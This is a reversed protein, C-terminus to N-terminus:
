KGVNTPKETDRLYYSVCKITNVMVQSYQESNFHIVPCSNTFPEYSYGQYIQAVESTSPTIIKYDRISNLGISLSLKEMAGYSNHVITVDIPFKDTNPDEIIIDFGKTGLLFLLRNSNLSDLYNSLNGGREIYM